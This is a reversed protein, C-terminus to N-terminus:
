VEQGFGMEMKCPRGKHGEVIAIRSTMGRTMKWMGVRGCRWVGGEGHSEVFIPQLRFTPEEMIPQMIPGVTSEPKYSSIKKPPKASKASNVTKADKIQSTVNVMLPVHTICCTPSIM